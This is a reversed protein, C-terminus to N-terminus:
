SSSLPRLRAAIELKHFRKTPGSVLDLFAGGCQSLPSRFHDDAPYMPRFGGSDAYARRAREVGVGTERDGVAEVPIETAPPRVPLAQATM